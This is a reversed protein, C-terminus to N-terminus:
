RVYQMMARIGVALAMELHLPRQFIGYAFGSDFSWPVGESIGFVLREDATHM